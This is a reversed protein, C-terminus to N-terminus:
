CEAFTKEAFNESGVSEHFNEGEFIEMIINPFHYVHEHIYM